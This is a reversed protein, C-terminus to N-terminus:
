SGVVAPRRRGAFYGGATASLVRLANVIVFLATGYTATAEAISSGYIVLAFYLLTAVIGILLGHLVHASALKRTAFWVIVFPVVVCAIPVAVFFAQDGLLPVFPLTTVALGIEVLFGAIVVRLWRIQQM